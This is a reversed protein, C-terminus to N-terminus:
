EWVVPHFDFLLQNGLLEELLVEDVRLPEYM